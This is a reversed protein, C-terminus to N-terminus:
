KFWEQPWQSLPRSELPCGAHRWDSYQATLEAGPLLITASLSPWLLFVIIVGVKLNGWAQNVARYVVTLAGSASLLLSLLALVGIANRASLAQEINTAVQDRAAPMYREVLGMTRTLPQPPTSLFTLWGRLFRDVTRILRDLWRQKREM